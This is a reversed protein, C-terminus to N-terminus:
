QVGGWEKILERLKGAVIHSQIPWLGPAVLSPWEAHLVVQAAREIGANFGEMYRADLRWDATTQPNDSKNPM